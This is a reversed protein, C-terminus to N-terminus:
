RRLQLLQLAERVAPSDTAQLARLSGCARVAPLLRERAFADSMTNSDCHLTQLQRARPLARIIPELGADGLACFQIYLTKLAPSQAIFAGVAAGAAAAHEPPVANQMIALVSLSPHEHLARLLAAAAHMDHWLYVHALMLTELQTNARLANCLLAASAPSDLLPVGPSQVSLSRLAHCGLLRALASAPPELIYVARLLPLSVLADVVADSEAQAEPWMGLLSVCALSSHVALCDALAHWSLDTDDIELIARKLRLPGFPPEKRLVPLTYAGQCDVGTELLHLGPAARLWATVSELSPSSDDCVVLERMTGANEALVAPLDAYNAPSSLRLVELQGGARAAAARLLANSPNAVGSAPSLDLRTWSAHDALLVRWSRCVAASLLREHAPLLAFIRLALPVPLVYFITLAADEREAPQPPMIQARLRGLYAGM